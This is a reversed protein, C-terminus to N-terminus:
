HMKDEVYDIITIIGEMTKCGSSAQFLDLSVDGIFKKVEQNKHMVVLYFGTDVKTTSM